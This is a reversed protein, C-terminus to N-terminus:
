SRLRSVNEKVRIRNQVTTVEKVSLEPVPLNKLANAMILAQQAGSTNQNTVFGGDAYGNRMRELARLHGQAAPSEVVHKPTVYEGKHVVGAVDYKGGPGTYGGEAFGEIYQKAAAVNALVTAITTAMAVLNGPYPINQSSAIGSVLAEATNVGINLLALAKQEASGERALTQLGGFLIKASALYQDNLQAQITLSERYYEQKQNETFDVTKLEAIFQKQRAQSAAIVPDSAQAGTSPDVLDIGQPKNAERIEFALLELEQRRLEILTRRATVNETLKGTIEEEKDSIEATLQAVQLQAERNLDYQITSRKIADIEAQIIIVSRQKSAEFIQDIKESAAIRDDIAQKEDDRIRRLIEARREDVKADGAAFARSIALDKLTKAVSAYAESEAYIAPIYRSLLAITAGELFGVSNEQGSVYEALNKGVVQYAYSLQIQANELDRAGAASATYAKFLGALATSALGIGGAVGAFKSVTGELIGNLEKSAASAGQAAQPYNGVNRRFDGGAQEAQKLSETLEKIKKNLADFQKIGQETTRNTANREQTLAALAARDANLSGTEAKIINTLTQRQKSEKAINQQLRINEEVYEEQTINGAKLAKQLDQQAKKNDLLLGEIKELQQVASKQDVELNLLITEEQQVAM